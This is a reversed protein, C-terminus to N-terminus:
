LCIPSSDIWSGYIRVQLINFMDCAYLTHHLIIAIYTSKEPFKQALNIQSYWKVKQLDPVMINGSHFLNLLKSVYYTYSINRYDTAKMLFKLLTKKDILINLYKNAFINSMMTITIMVTSNGSLFKAPKGKGRRNGGLLNYRRGFFCWQLFPASM